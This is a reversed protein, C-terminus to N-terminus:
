ESSSEGYYIHVDELKIDMNYFKKMQDVFSQKIDNLPIGEELLNVCDIGVYELEGCNGYAKLSSEEDGVGSLNNYGYHYDDQFEKKIKEFGAEGCYRLDVGDSWGNDSHQVGVICFSSSSSNSVFGNRIKM